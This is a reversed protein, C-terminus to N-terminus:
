KPRKTSTEAVDWKLRLAEYVTPSNTVIDTVLRERLSLIASLL